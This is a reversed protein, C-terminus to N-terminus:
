GTPLQVSVLRSVGPRAMTVGYLTDACEMTKRNHTVVLFQSRRSMERLMDNFRAGNAEDLPADVEDLVCFPSPKVRFLAILLAIATMAKEGGSLLQLNQLRKGPPQVFIDVGTELLDEDDTLALRASGGGVLRPYTERFHDNVLDFTERFRERCERNLKAIAGRIQDLAHELDARQVELEDWRARLDRYEASAGLNVEGLAALAGRLEDLEEVVGVIAQEDQLDGLVIEVPPVGEVTESGVTIGDAAEQDAELTLSGRAHLRDLWAPLSVQYRDEMGRRLVELEQQVAGVRESAEGIRRSAEELRSRQQRLAREALALGEALAAARARTQELQDWREARETRSSEAAGRAESALREAEARGAAAREMAQQAHTVADVLSAVRRLAEEAQRDASAAREEVAVRELALGGRAEQAAREETLASTLEARRETLEARAVELASTAAEVVSRAAEVAQGAGELAAEAETVQRGAEEAVRAAAEVASRQHAAAGRAEALRATVAQRAARTRERRDIADRLGQRARRAEDRLPAADPLPVEPRPQHLATELTGEAEALVAGARADEERRAKELAGRLEAVEAVITARGEATLRQVEAEGARRIEETRAAGESEVRHAAERTREVEATAATRATGADAVAARAREVAEEAAVVAAALARERDVLSALEGPPGFRFGGAGDTRFGPGTAPVGAGDAEVPDEAWAVRDAPSRQGEPWFLVAVPSEARRAIERLAVPDRVVVRAADDGLRQVIAAREEPGVGAVLTEVEPLLEELLAQEGAPAELRRRVADLEARGAGRAGEATGLARVAEGESREASALAARASALEEAVAAKARDAEARAQAFASRARERAETLNAELAATAERERRAVRDAAARESRTWSRARDARLAEVWRRGRDLAATRERELRAQEALASDREAEIAQLRAATGRETETAADVAREAEACAADAPALEAEVRTIQETAAETARELEGVRSGAAQLRSRAAALGSVRETHAAQAVAARAEASARAESARSVAGEALAVAERRSAVGGALATSTQDAATISRDLDQLRVRQAAAEERAREVDREAARVAATQREVEARGREVEADQEARRRDHLVAAADLERIRGDLEAVEDRRSAAVAEATALEERREVLDEERRLVERRTSDEKGKAEDLERRLARRDQALAHHKVLALQLEGQRVLARIRRFRAAVLVQQELSRLRRTMEDLVDAARDLQGSTNVLRQQAEDRRAKYRAIGAAEDILTRREAPSATIMKDVQGQEIFSYLNNGIGSDLLLEVVDRRRVRSQNVFYESAGTRHLRRGVQLEHLQAYEGPFPTDSSAKLTLAVEAYGVPKRDTSGAFIVDTMESGRLSRASQEGVCWKLADVVNSKGSGNPGVVCSIGDGFHFVTRDPFSKFGHLELRTIRM